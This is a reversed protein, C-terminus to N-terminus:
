WLLPEVALEAEALRRLYPAAAKPPFVALKGGAKAALTRRWCCALFAGSLLLLEELRPLLRVRFERVAAPLRISGM